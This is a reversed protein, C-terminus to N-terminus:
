RRVSLLHVVILGAWTALIGPWGAVWGAVATLPLAFTLLVVLRMTSIWARRRRSREIEALREEVRAEIAREVQTLFREVVLEEYDPGLERRAGLAAHLETVVDPRALWPEATEAPGAYAHWLARLVSIVRPQRTRTSSTTPHTTM